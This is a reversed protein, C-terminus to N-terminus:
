PGTGVPGVRFLSCSARVFNGANAIISVSTPPSNRSLLDCGGRGTGISSANEGVTEVTPAQIQSDGHVFEMSSTYLRTSSTSGGRPQAHCGVAADSQLSDDGSAGRRIDIAFRYGSTVGDWRFYINKATSDPLVRCTVRYTTSSAFAHTLSLSAASTASASALFVVTNDGIVAQQEQELLRFKGTISGAGTHFQVSSLGASGTYRGGFETQQPNNGTNRFFYKGTMLGNNNNADESEMDFSGFSVQGSGVLDPGLAISSDGNAGGGGVGATNGLIHARSYNAGSDSNFRVFHSGNSTNQVLNWELRYKKGTTLSFSASTAASVSREEIVRWVKNAVGTTLSVVTADEAASDRLTFFANNFAMTSRKPFSSYPGSSPGTSLTHGGASSASWSLNGSGDNQLRTGAAGQAQPWNQNVGNLTTSSVKLRGGNDICGVPVNDSPRRLEFASNAPCSTQAMAARPTAALLALAIAAILRKM